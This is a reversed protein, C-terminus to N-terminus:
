PPQQAAACVVSCVSVPVASCAATAATYSNTGQLQEGQAAADRLSNLQPVFSLACVLLYLLVLLLPQLIATQARCSSVKHLLTVSATSSLGPYRYLQIVEAGSGLKSTVDSASVAQASVCLHFESCISVPSCLLHFHRLLAYHLCCRLVPTAASNSSSSGQHHSSLRLADVAMLSCVSCGRSM